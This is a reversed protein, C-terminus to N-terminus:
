QALFRVETSGVRIAVGHSLSYQTVRVGNVFTGNTSGLDVLTCNGAADMLIHAHNTSAFGDQDLMLDSGPAKGMTFGHRLGIRQGERPGNMIFLQPGYIPAAVAPPAAVPAPPGGVAPMGATPPANGAADVIGPAGALFADLAGGAKKHKRKTMVVGIVALGGLLAVGGGILLLLWGLISRKEEVRPQVCRDAACYGDAPCEQGACMPAIPVKVDNSVLAPKDTAVGVKKGAVEDAAVLFTLVYQHNIEDHVREFAANFGQEGGLEVYRFAGLSRKSLEALHLLPGKSGAVGGPPAKLNPVYAITDIRVGAKGARTGLNTIKTRDEDLDRGDGIILLIKRVPVGEPDAKANRLITLGKEVAAVLKPTDGAETSLGALKTQAQKVPGLKTGGGIKDSYGIVAVQTNAPLTSLVQKDLAAAIIPLDTKFDDTTEVLIVIATPLTTADYFGAMYALRKEGNSVRLKWAKDGYIALPGATRTPDLTTVLLRLRAVGPMPTPELDARDVVLRSSVTGGAHAPTATAIWSAALCGLLLRRM